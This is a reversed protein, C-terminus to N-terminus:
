SAGEPIKDKELDEGVNDIEMVIPSRGGPNRNKGESSSSTMWKRYGLADSKGHWESIM